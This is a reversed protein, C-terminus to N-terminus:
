SNMYSVTYMLRFYKKRRPTDGERNNEFTKLMQYFCAEQCLNGKSPSQKKWNNREFKRHMM